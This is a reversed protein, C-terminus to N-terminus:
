KLFQSLKSLYVNNKLIFIVLPLQSNSRLMEYFICSTTGIESNSRLM